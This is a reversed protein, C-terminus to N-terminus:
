EKVFKKTITKDEAKLELIYVGSSLSSVDISTKSAYVMSKLSYVKGVVDSIRTSNITLQSSQVTLKEKSPNPYIFIGEDTITQISSGIISITDTFSQLCGFSDIVMLSVYYTGTNNFTHSPNKQTSSNGDGFNWQYSVGNQNSAFFNYDYITTATSTFSADPLSHVIVSVTDRVKCNNSDTVQVWYNGTQNVSLSNIVSNDNWLYQIFNGADLAVSNGACISTDTGLYPTPLAHVNVQISDAGVCKFDDYVIVRYNGAQHANVIETSDATNWQYADYDGADLRIYNGACIATDNGLSPTLNYHALSYFRNDLWYMRNIIWSKLRLIEDHYTQPLPQPEPWTAVGLEVWTTFNRQQSEDIYSATSDVYALLTDTNFINERFYKWRCYVHQNYLTDQRLREWWATNANGPCVYALNYAWGTDIYAECYDANMYTIDYDWVPGMHIKGGKSEKDKNFYTSLRYGDVNKSIENVFMYDMFSKESAFKRFGTVPNQFNVGFLATEFSDVYKQIYDKQQQQINQQSPYEYQFYIADGISNASPYNSYFGDGGSGTFKDIKLIYGGTLNNGNTDDQELKSIDVRNKDRKIKECLVYNGQYQGNLFVECYRTHPAYHGTENALKYSLVNHMLTKDYYNALLCWDSEVAMGLLSTDMPVNLSNWTEFGYSKKPASGSSSGRLEIGINGQYAFVSDNSYNRNGSGNDVIKFDASIKPNDPISQGNTNIFIIPLNSSMPPPPLAPTTSFRVSWSTVVGTDQAYDDRVKLYWIGNGGQGNNFMGLDGMPRYTGTFPASGSAISTTATNRFSTFTFNDGSGGVGSFLLVETGDPSQLWVELDADWTHTISLTIREFGWGTDIPSQNLGSVNCPFLTWTNNDPISGTGGTFNQQPQAYSSFSFLLFVITLKCDGWVNKM